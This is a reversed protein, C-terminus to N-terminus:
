EDLITYSLDIDLMKTHFQTVFKKEGHPFQKVLKKTTTHFQTAIM